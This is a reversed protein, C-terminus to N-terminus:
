LDQLDKETDDHTLGVLLCLGAQISGVLENAVAFLFPFIVIIVNKLISCKQEKIVHLIVVKEKKLIKVKVM